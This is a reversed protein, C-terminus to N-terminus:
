IKFDPFSCFSSLIKFGWEAIWKSTKTSVIAVYWMKPIVLKILLKCKRKWLGMGEVSVTSLRMLFLLRMQPWYPQSQNKNLFTRTYKASSLNVPLKGHINHLDMVAVEAKPPYKRPNPHKTTCLIFKPSCQTLEAVSPGFYMTFVFAFLMFSFFSHM